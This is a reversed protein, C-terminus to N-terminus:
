EQTVEQQGAPLRVYDNTPPQYDTGPTLSGGLRIFIDVARNLQVDSRLRFTAGQGEQIKASDATLTINPVIDTGNMVQHLTGRRCATPVLAAKPKGM